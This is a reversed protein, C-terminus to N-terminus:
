TGGLRSDCCVIQSGTSLPSLIDQRTGMGPSFALGYKGEELAAICQEFATRTPNHSRTYEYGKHEGLGTQAYTSTQFIPTMIAGTSPDPAQGAHIARTAFKM